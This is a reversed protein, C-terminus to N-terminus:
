NMNKIMKRCIIKVVSCFIALGVAILIAAVIERLSYIGNM